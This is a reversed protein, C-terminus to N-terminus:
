EGPACKRKLFLMLNGVGLIKKCYLCPLVLVIGLMLAIVLAFTFLVKFNINCLGSNVSSAKYNFRYGVIFFV